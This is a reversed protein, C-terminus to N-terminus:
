CGGCKMALIVVVAVAGLAFLWLIGAISSCCGCGTSQLAQQVGTSQEGAPYEEPIGDSGERIKPGPDHKPKRFLNKGGSKM